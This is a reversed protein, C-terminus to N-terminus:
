THLRNVLRQLPRMYDDLAPLGARRVSLNDLVSNAPRKAPRPPILESTSIPIVRQPDMGAASLVDKAFDFWSAVGSNTVHWIGSRQEEALRVIMSALDDTFSPCGIQDNVFRLETQSQALRLITKVMNPGHYGCVWATRVITDDGNMAQEGALKSAGYVSQPNPEDFETYAAPKSGDFVYDTSIYVVRAGIARASNAISGSATGNVEFARGPDGECADVATWAASHIVVDPRTAVLADHVNSANTIDLKGHTSAVVDHGIGQSVRVLEQGLQGDAGTIFVKM